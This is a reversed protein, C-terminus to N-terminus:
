AGNTAISQAKDKLEMLRTRLELALSEFEEEGANESVWLPEGYVVVCKSFPLPLFCQNWSKKFVIKRTAFGATPVIAKGTKQALAFIGPKVEYVPGRPGDVALSTPCDQTKMLDLLGKLGAAGGRSSSGRVVQFGLLELVRKMLEGDRSKSAMVAMKKFQGMKLMLLEDGHWHAFVRGNQQPRLDLRGKERVRWLSSLVSYCSVILLAKLQIYFNSIM